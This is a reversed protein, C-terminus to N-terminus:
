VSDGGGGPVRRSVAPRWVVPRSGTRRNGAGVCDRVAVPVFHVAPALALRVTVEGIADIGETVARVAFELLVNPAQVIADIAKYTADVPGTGVAAEVRAKGDPGILRVTATAMGM